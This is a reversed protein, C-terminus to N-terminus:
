CLFGFFILGGHHFLVQVRTGEYAMWDLNEVFQGPVVLLMNMGWLVTIINMPLFITGLVTLRELDDTTQEQREN